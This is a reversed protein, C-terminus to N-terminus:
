VTSDDKEEGQTNFTKQLHQAEALATLTKDLQALTFRAPGTQVNTVQKQQKNSLVLAMDHLANVAGQIIRDRHDPTTTISVEVLQVSDADKLRDSM